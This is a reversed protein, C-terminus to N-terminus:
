RKFQFEQQYDQTYSGAVEHLMASFFFHIRNWGSLGDTRIATHTTWSMDVDSWQEFHCVIIM